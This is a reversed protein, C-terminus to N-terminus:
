RTLRAPVGALPLTRTVKGTAADLVLLQAPDRRAMLIEAGGAMPGGESGALVSKRDPTVIYRRSSTSAPACVHVAGVMSAAAFM